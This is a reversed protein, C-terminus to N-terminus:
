VLARGIAGQPQRKRLRTARCIRRVQGLRGSALVLASRRDCPTPCESDPGPTQREELRSHSRLPSWNPRSGRGMVVILSRYTSRNTSRLVRRNRPRLGAALRAREVSKGGVIKSAGIKEAGDVYGARRYTTMSRKRASCPWRLTTSIRRSSTFFIMPNLDVVGPAAFSKSFFIRVRILNAM